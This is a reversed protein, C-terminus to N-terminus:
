LKGVYGFAFSFESQGDSVVGVDIVVGPVVSPRMRFGVDFIFRGPHKETGRLAPNLYIDRFNLYPSDWMGEAIFSLQGSMALEAGFLGSTKLDDRTVGAHADLFRCKPRDEVMRKSALLYYKRGNNVKKLPKINQMDNTIDRVALAIAPRKGTENLFQWKVGFCLFSQNGMQPVFGDGIDLLNRCYSVGVELNDLVGYTVNTRVQRDSFRRSGIFEVHKSEGYNLGIEGANLTRATPIVYLGTLGHWSQAATPRVDDAVGARTIILALAIIIVATRRL